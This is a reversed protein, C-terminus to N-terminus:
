QQPAKWPFYKDIAKIVLFFVFMFVFIAVMSIGTVYIASSVDKSKDRSVVPVTVSTNALDSNQMLKVTDASVVEINNISDQM